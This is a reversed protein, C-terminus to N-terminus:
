ARSRTLSTSGLRALLACAADWRVWAAELVAVELDHQVVADWIEAPPAAVDVGGVEAEANKRDALEEEYPLLTGAPQPQVRHRSAGYNYTALKLCFCAKV